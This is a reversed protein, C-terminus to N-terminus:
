APKINELIVVLVLDNGMTERIIKATFGTQGFIKRTRNEMDETLETTQNTIAFLWKAIKEPLTKGAIWAMPIVILRGAPKLVRRAEELTLKDLIYESPFTAVISDMTGSPFPLHQAIGRALMPRNGLRSIKKRAIIAMQSSEDLGFTTFGQEKLELQLDGTGFGLELVTAGNIHPLAARRWHKWRGLSVLKSVIDYSWALSHYFYHFFIKLLKRL